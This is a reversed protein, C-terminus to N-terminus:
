CDKSRPGTASEKSWRPSEGPAFHEGPQIPQESLYRVGRNGIPAADANTFTKNLGLAEIEKPTLKKLAERRTKEQETEIPRDGEEFLTAERISCAPAVGFIKPDNHRLHFEAQERTEYRAVVVMPGRGETLDANQLVEYITKM